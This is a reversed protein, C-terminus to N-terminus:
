MTMKQVLVKVELIKLFAAHKKSKKAKNTLIRTIQKMTDSAWGIPQGRLNIKERTPECNLKKCYNLKKSFYKETWEEFEQVLECIEELSYKDSLAEGLKYQYQQGCCEKCKLQCVPLRSMLKMNKRNYKDALRDSTVDVPKYNKMNHFMTKMTNLSDVDYHFRTLPLWVISGRVKPIKEPYQNNVMRHTLWRNVPAESAQDFWVVVPVGRNLVMMMPNQWKLIEKLRDQIFICGWGNPIRIVKGYRRPFDIIQSQKKSGFLMMHMERVNKAEEFCNTLAEDKLWHACPTPCNKVEPWILLGESAPKLENPCQIIPKLNEFRLSLAFSHDSLISYRGNEMQQKVVGYMGNLGPKSILNQFQVITGIEIAENSQDM